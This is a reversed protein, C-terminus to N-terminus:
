TTCQILITIYLKTLSLLDTSPVSHIIDYTDRVLLRGFVNGRLDESPFDESAPFNYPWSEVEISM